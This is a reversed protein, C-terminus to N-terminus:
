EKVVIRMEALAVNFNEDYAYFMIRYEGVTEAEFVYEVGEAVISEEIATYEVKENVSFVTVDIIESYNDMVIIKPLTVEDGVKCEITRSDSITITPPLLDQINVYAVSSTCKLNAGDYTLYEIVYSGFEEIAFTMGTTLVQKNYVKEYSPTTVTVYIDMYPTLEDCAFATPVTFIDGIRYTKSADFNYVVVPRVIDKFTVLSGTSTYEMYFTQNRIKTIKIASALEEQSDVQADVFSIDIKVYGSSFGTFASGDFNQLVKCIRTSSFNVVYGNVFGIGLPKEVVDSDNNFGGSFTYSEGLYVLESTTAGKKKVDVSFGINANNMDTFTFRLAGFAQYAKEVAFNVIASSSSVPNIFSVKADNGSKKAAFRLFSEENTTNYSVEVNDDDYDFYDYAYTAKQIKCDYELVLGEANPYNRCYYKYTIKIDTGFKEISPTFLRDEKLEESNGNGSITIKLKANLAIGEMSDYDYADVTPLQLKVGDLVKTPMNLSGSLVPEKKSIVSVVFSEDAKIGLYDEASYVIKYEGVVKPIFVGGNVEIPENDEIRYVNYQSRVDGAGGAVTYEPIKISHGLAYEYREPEDYSIRIGEVLWSCIIPYDSVTTNGFGDKSEYRIVYEGVKTPTFETGTQKVFDNSSPEKVYITTTCDGNVLDTAIYDFFKYSQNPIAYPLDGKPTYVSLNPAKDDIVSEGGMPQGAINYIMINSSSSALNDITISIKARDKTFGTFINEVGVTKSDTLCLIVYDGGNKPNQGYYDYLSQRRMTLTYDMPNLRVSYPLVLEDQANNTPPSTFRSVNGLNSNYTRMGTPRTENGIGAGWYYGMKEIKDTYASIHTRSEAGAVAEFVVAIYNDPNYADELRVTIKPTEVVDRVQVVPLFDILPIDTTLSNVDIENKYVLANKAASFTAMVGNHHYEPIYRVPEGEVERYGDTILATDRWIAGYGNTVFSPSDVNSQLTIKDTTTFLSDAAVVNTPMSQGEEATVPLGGLTCLGLCIVTAFCISLATTMKKKVKLRM